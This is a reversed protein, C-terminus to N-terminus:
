AAALEVADPPQHRGAIRQLVIASRCSSSSRACRSAVHGGIRADVDGTEFGDDSCTVSDVRDIIQAAASGAQAEYPDHAGVIERLEMAPLVPLPDRGPGSRRSRDDEAFNERARRARRVPAPAKDSARSDLCAPEGIRRAGAQTNRVPSFILREDVPKRFGSPLQFLAVHSRRLPSQINFGNVGCAYYPGRADPNPARSVTFPITGPWM